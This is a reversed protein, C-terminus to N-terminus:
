VPDPLQVQGLPTDTINMTTPDMYHMVGAPHIDGGARNKLFQLYWQDQLLRYEDAPLNPDLCPRYAALFYDAAQEGGYRGSRLGLPREGNGGQERSVQHLVILAVDHERAFGKLQVAVKDVAEVASDRYGQILELYDVVVIRPKVGTDELKELNESMKEVSISPWDCVYFNPFQRQVESMAVAAGKVKMDDEIMRTPTRTSIAALRAAIYRAHMEISFMLTPVKPNHAIVNLAWATKGVSPRAVFFVVEGLAVGGNTRGDVMPYGLPIRPQDSTAWESYEDAVETLGKYAAREALMPDIV